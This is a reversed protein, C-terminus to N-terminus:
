KPEFIFIGFFMDFVMRCNMNELFMDFDIRCIM